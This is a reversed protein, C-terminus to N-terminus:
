TKKTEEFRHCDELREKGKMIKDSCVHLEGSRKMDVVTTAYTTGYAMMEMFLNLHISVSVGKYVYVGIDKFPIQTPSTHLYKSRLINVTHM